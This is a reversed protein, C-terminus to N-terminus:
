KSRTKQFSAHKGQLLLRQTVSAELRVRVLTWPELFDMRLDDIWVRPGEKRYCITALVHKIPPHFFRRLKGSAATLIVRTTHHSAFSRTAKLELPFARHDSARVLMRDPYGQGPCEQVAFGALHRNIRSAFFPAIRNGLAQITIKPDVALCSVIFSCREFAARFSTVIKDSEARDWKATLDMRPKREWASLESYYDRLTKM